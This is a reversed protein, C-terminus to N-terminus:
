NKKVESEEDGQVKTAEPTMKNIAATINEVFSPDGDMIDGIDEWTYNSKKGIKRNGYNIAIACLQFSDIPKLNEFIASLDLDPDKYKESLYEQFTLIANMSLHIPYKEGNSEITLVKMNKTKSLRWLM